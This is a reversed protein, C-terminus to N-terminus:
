VPAHYASDNERIQVLKPESISNILDKCTCKNLFMISNFQKRFIFLIQAMLIIHSSRPKQLM